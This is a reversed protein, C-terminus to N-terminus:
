LKGWFSILRWGLPHFTRWSFHCCVEPVNDHFGQNFHDKCNSVILDGHCQITKCWRDLFLVFIIWCPWRTVIVTCADDKGLQAWLFTVDDLPYGSMALWGGGGVYGGGSILGAILPRSNSYIVMPKALILGALSNFGIILHCNGFGVILHNFVECTTSSTVGLRWTSTQMRPFFATLM